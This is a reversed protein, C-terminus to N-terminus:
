AIGADSLRQELTEIREKGEKLAAVLLPIVETYALSLYTQNSDDGPLSSETVAEPLVQQVDQAILFARSVEEPDTKYRGTVARLSSVKQIANNIPLLDTKLREDSNSSWSTAATGNLLVGTGSGASVYFQGPQGTYPGVIWKTSNNSSLTLVTDAYGASTAGIFVDGDNTIRMRETPGSAGDATTSFVLRGPNDTTDGGDTWTGDAQAAISAASRYTAGDYGIFDITGLDDGNSVETPSAATGRTKTLAVYAGGSNDASRIFEANVGIDSRIQLNCGQSASSATGVLLRGSSDIRARETSSTYFTQAVAGDTFYGLEGAAHKIFLSSNAGDSFHASVNGYSGGLAASGRVAFFGFSGPSGTGIGVNGDSTIRLRETPSSAGDATVSFVLRGPYNGAGPTADVLAAIHAFTNGANDNFKIYGLDTGSSMATAAQGRQISLDGGGSALGQYGQVVLLSYQGGGASPSSATGVLLRGSSDIRARESSNTYLQLSASGTTGLGMPTTGISFLEGQNAVFANGVGFVLGNSGGFRAQGAVDLQYSPSTTGIGVNGGSAQLAISASGAGADVGQINVVDTLASARGISIYKNGVTDPDGIYALTTTQGTGLRAIGTSRFTGSVDLTFDPSSTGLGLNGNSTIRAREGNDTRFTIASNAVANDEDVGLQLVAGNTQLTSSGISDKLIIGAGADTSEFIAVNNVTGGNVHFYTSPSAQGVGVYGNADVFLRGTGNTALAVNNAAPLYVGNTPVTSSTPIFSAATSTGTTVVAQSGFDPSIKTGAIAASASVDANVIELDGIMDSTIESWATDYDTGSQKFLVQNAAGGNPVGQGAPGQIGPVAINVQAESPAALAIQTNEQDIIAIQVNAM